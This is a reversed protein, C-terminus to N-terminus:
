QETTECMVPQGLTPVGDCNKGCEYDTRQASSMGMRWARVAARCSELSEFDGLYLFDTLNTAQPYAFASWKDAKSCSGLTATLVVAVIQLSFRQKTRVM